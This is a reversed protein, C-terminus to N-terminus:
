REIDLDVALQRGWDLLAEDRGFAASCQLGWPLGAESHGAPLSLVPVGAHTWPLSMAPDGTSDLGEPATSTAAPSVWIDVGAGRRLDELVARLERLSNRGESVVEPGLAGGRRVIEASRPRYSDGYEAFLEAHVRAMEAAMLQRHRTNIAEIDELASVQQVTYGFARLMELQTDFAERAEASAQELYPGAPVGLVPQAQEAELPQWGICLHAAAMELGAVDQAFFGIQDLSPACHLLGGASVRGASPKFGAVGCYAAPRVVSGITQTGLALPCYGAAVAAASGSSSGGPTHKTNCPNRTPAPEFYAFEATATKGLVLAGAELLAEVCPSPDGEFAEPPLQSGARTPMGAVRIVDKVGFLLGYLPPRGAPDPFREQLRAAQLALRELRDEEPVLAQFKDEGEELRRGVAAIYDQLSLQGERLSWLTEVLPAANERM